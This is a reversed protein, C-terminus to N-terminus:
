VDVDGNPHAVVEYGRYTFRVEVQASPDAQELLVDLADPDIVDALPPSLEGPDVNAENAIADVIRVAPPFTTVAM